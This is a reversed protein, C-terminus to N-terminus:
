ILGGDKTKDQVVESINSTKRRRVGGRNSGLKPPTGTAWTPTLGLLLRLSNPRSIIKLTNWGTHFDYRLTVSLRASLQSVTAYLM